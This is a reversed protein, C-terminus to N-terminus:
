GGIQYKTLQWFASMVNPYFKRTELPLYDFWFVGYDRIRRQVRGGGANYACVIKKISDPFLQFLGKLHEGSCMINKEPDYLDDISYGLGAGTAPMIQMVGIAGVPSVANAKYGSEIFGMAKMLVWHQYGIFNNCSVKFLDDYKTNYIAKSYIEKIMCDM